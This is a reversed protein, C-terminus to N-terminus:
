TYEWSCSKQIMHYNLKWKRLSGGYQKGYHNYWNVNGGVTYSLERQEVGERGHITQLNKSLPWESPILHYRMIAKIQMERIILSISCRKMHKQIMLIDEKFFHRNLSINGWVLWIAMILIDVYLLNQLPHPLLLVRRCQQHSHLNTCSSHFVICLNRLFNFISNGYSGAIVSRPICEFLVM